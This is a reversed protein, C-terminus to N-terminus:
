QFFHSDNNHGGDGGINEFYLPYFHLFIQTRAWVNVKRVKQTLQTLTMDTVLRKGSPVDIM